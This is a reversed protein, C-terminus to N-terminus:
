HISQQQILKFLNEDIPAAAPASVSLNTTSKKLMRKKYEAPSEALFSSENANGDFDFNSKRDICAVGVSCGIGSDSISAQMDFKDLAM